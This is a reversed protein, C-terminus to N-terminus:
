KKLDKKKSSASGSTNNIKRTLLIHGKEVNKLDTLNIEGENNILYIDFGKKKLDDLCTNEDKFKEKDYDMIIKIKPSSKIINEAGKIARNVGSIISIRLFDVNQLNPCLKDLSSMTVKIGHHGRKSQYEGEKIFGNGPFDGSKYTLTGSSDRDSAVVTQTIIRNEFGNEKASLRITDNYKEMPNLMYIRGSQTILKAMLLQQVGVDHSVYIITDGKKLNKKYYSILDNEQVEHIIQDHSFIDSNIKIKIDDFIIKEMVNKPDVPENNVLSSSQKRFASIGIILVLSFVLFICTHLLVRRRLNEPMEEM